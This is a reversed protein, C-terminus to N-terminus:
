LFASWDSVPAQNTLLFNITYLYVAPLALILAWKFAKSTFFGQFQLLFIPSLPYALRNIDRQPICLIFVTYFLAFWFWSREKSDKLSIVLFFLFVVYILVDEVWGTSVWPNTFNFQAFPITMELGNGKQANLFAFFDGTRFFYLFCLGLLAAPMIGLWLYEWRWAHKEKRIFRELIVAGFAPMLFIAQVKTLIALAGAIAAYLVKNVEWFWFALLMLFVLLTEPAIVGRLVLYRAPFITFVFTLLMPHKTYKRAVMYFVLNLLFGFILTSAVGSYLWGFVPSLLLLTAPYLPLHATFYIASYPLILYKAVEQTDYWTKAVVIYNPGDWNRIINFMGPDRIPLFLLQDLRLVFPLWMLVAPVVSILFIYILERFSLVSLRKM